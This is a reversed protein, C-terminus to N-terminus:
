FVTSSGFKLDWGNGNGAESRWTTKNYLNMGQKIMWPPLVRMSTAENESKKDMLPLLLGDVDLLLNGLM